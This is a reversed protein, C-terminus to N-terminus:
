VKHLSEDRWENELQKKLFSNGRRRLRTEIQHTQAELRRLGPGFIAGGNPWVDGRQGLRVRTAFTVNSLSSFLLLGLLSGQQEEMMRELDFDVVTGNRVAELDFLEDDRVQEIEDGLQSGM